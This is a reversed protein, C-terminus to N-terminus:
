EEVFDPFESSTWYRNINDITKTFHKYDVSKVMYGAIGLEFIENKDNQDKSTTLIIVPISKLIHDNKIITLFEFGDMRPMNLDLLILTPLKTNKDRLYQLAEEGDPSVHLPYALGLDKFIRKIIKVDIIDDEVLLVSNIKTM